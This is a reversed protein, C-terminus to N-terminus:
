WSGDSLVILPEGEVEIDHGGCMEVWEKIRNLEDASLFAGNEPDFQFEVTVM